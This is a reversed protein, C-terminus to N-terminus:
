IYVNYKVIARPEINRLIYIEKYFGRNILGMYIFNGIGNISISYSVEFKNLGYESVVVEEGLSRGRESSNYIMTPEADNRLLSPMLPPDTTWPDPINAQKIRYAFVKEITKRGLRSEEIKNILENEDSIDLMAQLYILEDESFYKIFPVEFSVVKVGNINENRYVSKKIYEIEGSRRSSQKGGSNMSM